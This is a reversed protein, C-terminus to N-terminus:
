PDDRTSVGPKAPRMLFMSQRVMAWALSRPPWRTSLLATSLESDAEGDVRCDSDRSGAVEALFMTVSHFLSDPSLRAALTRRVTDLPPFDQVVSTLAATDVPLGRFVYPSSFVDWGPIGGPDGDPFWEADFRPEQFLVSLLPPAETKTWMLAADLSAADISAGLGTSCTRVLSDSRSRNLFFHVNTHLVVSGDPHREASSHVVDICVTSWTALTVTHDDAVAACGLESLSDAIASAIQTQGAEM